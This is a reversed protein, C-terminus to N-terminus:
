KLMLDNGGCQFSNFGKASRGWGGLTASKEGVSVYDMFSNLYIFAFTDNSYMTTNM